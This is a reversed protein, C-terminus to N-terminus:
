FAAPIVADCDTVDVREFRIGAGIPAPKVVMRAPVGRHLGIGDFSVPANLTTQFRTQM